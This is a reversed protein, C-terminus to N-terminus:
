RLGFRQNQWCAQSHKPAETLHVAENIEFAVYLDFNIHLNDLRFVQRHGNSSGITEGTKLPSPSAVTSTTHSRDDLDHQITTHSSMIDYQRTNDHLWRYQRM